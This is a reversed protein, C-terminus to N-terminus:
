GVAMARVLLRGYGYRESSSVAEDILSSATQADHGYGRL